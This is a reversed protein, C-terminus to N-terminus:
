GTPIERTRPRKREPEPRMSSRPAILAVRRCDELYQMLQGDLRMAIQARYRAQFRRQRTM